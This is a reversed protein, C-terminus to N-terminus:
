HPNCRNWIELAKDYNDILLNRANRIYVPNPPKESSALVRPDKSITLSCYNIEGKYDVHVHPLHHRDNDKPNICLRVRDKHTVLEEQLRQKGNVYFPEPPFDKECVIISEEVEDQNIIMENETSM